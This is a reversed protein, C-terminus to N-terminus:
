LNKLDLITELLAHDQPNLAFSLYNRSSCGNENESPLYPCM